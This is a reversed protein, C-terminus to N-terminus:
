GRYSQMQGAILRRVTSRNRGSLGTLGRRLGRKQCLSELCPRAQSAIQNEPVAAPMDRAALVARVHLDGVVGAKHAFETIPLQRAASRSIPLM